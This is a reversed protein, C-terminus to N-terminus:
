IDAGAFQSNYLDAYFGGRSLLEKHNGTEIIKGNNMVLILKADRITSLRHAIVFSTRGKMLNVMAKQILVETRTDVSSTAEDLILIVPDALIARAITLLQKQGQSINTGEENLITDYGLPLTRIFHDAHAAKAARVIEDMSAGEKGYAINDKITGNYLWTDQLVMGFMKRLESRKIDNINVGSVSIRGSNIEYFRMLLNVLTTKGAGTPGVIAITEGNKVDLNMDSILPVDDKYRFNVHEFKVDGRPNKITVTDKKDPIEEEEDLIEFVREACAVTSQIVNAINATQVIPMTFSRSYQIFALIDGLGLLSKTIWIGGVISIGVYALNSIFNMLPFMIGSVFQAKWGADKLRYNISEFEEIADKEHGFAKVVKHGTYIEEVHGSLDGLESQQLAFYKQSKKAIIATVAIYLPMTALVILTLMPSITLMMIIYGVITIVSTIIQTLSQQLTTAITDVDNTVRSLIDGHAHMDFYKLPLRSIKEDVERRLDRVTKQSVGSMVLGMALTFLASIIYMGILILIIDGIYHFDYEGNTERIARIASNIQDDTFKVNNSPNTPANTMASQMKKGLDMIKRCVDAKQDADTLSDLKPLAIFGQLSKIGETDIKTGSNNKNLTTGTDPMKSFIDLMQTLVKTKEDSDKITNLMPLKLLEKVSELQGPDMFSNSQSGTSNKNMDPMKSFIDVLKIVAATKQSSDTITSIDPLALLDKINQLDAKNIQAGLNATSSNATSSVNSMDPMDAFIDILKILTDKKAKSDTIGNLMPLKLLKQAADQAKKDMKGTSASTTKFDTIEPIKALAKDMTQKDLQMSSNQSSGYPMSKAIDMFKRIISVKQSSSKASELMPLKLLEKATNLSKTDIQSNPPLAQLIDIFQLTIDVKAQRGSVSDIMPLKLLKQMAVTTEPNMSPMPAGAQQAKQMQLMQKQVKDVLGKQVAAMQATIKDVATKQGSLVGQYMSIAIGKYVEDVAKVQADAMSNEIQEVAKTQGDAMKDNIQGITEKQVDGMKNEVQDVADNQGKSIGTLMKRAMYSDQLKNMAKSTIKPAMITFITSLIALILVILLNLKHPKLYGALRIFSGKFDKAKEMPRGIGMPGNHRRNGKPRHNEGPRNENM